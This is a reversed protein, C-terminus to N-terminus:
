VIVSLTKAGFLILGVMIVAAIAKGALLILFYKRWEPENFRLRLRDLKESFRLRTEERAQTMVRGRFFSNWLLLPVRRARSPRILRLALSLFARSHASKYGM